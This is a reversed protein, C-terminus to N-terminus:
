KPEYDNCSENELKTKNHKECLGSRVTDMTSGDTHHLDDKRERWHYCSPCQQENM